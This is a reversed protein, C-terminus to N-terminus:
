ASGGRAVGLVFLRTRDAAVQVLHPESILVEGAVAAIGALGARALGAVTQPGVAPLDFRHDQGPKAAKVLVGAGIPTRIRGTRRMEAIRALMGDTGEAGEVAVVRGGIVVAAQGVDFRGIADLLALGIEIDAADRASPKRRGIPGEAILIEPAVEHAGLLRFGYIEFIKAVGTLLRDDGGRMAAAVRPLVRLTAFDLWIGSLAPRVLNGIFVIDRCSADAAVRRFRGFQGLKVWQHPYSAIRSRDAAGEIAFLMVGRGNRLVADAVAFPLAGGGCIIGLPGAGLAQGGRLAPANM